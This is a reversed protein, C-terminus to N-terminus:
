RIRDVSDVLDQDKKINKKAFTVLVFAVALAYIGSGMGAYDDGMKNFGYAVGGFSLMIIVQSVSCLTIQLKRNNFLFITILTIAMGVVPALFVYLDSIASVDGMKESKAFPFVFAFLAMCFVALLLYVSQIRQIM